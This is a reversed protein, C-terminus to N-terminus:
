VSGTKFKGGSLEVKIGDAKLSAQGQSEMLVQKAAMEVENLDLKFPLELTLSPAETQAAEFRINGAVVIPEDWLGAWAVLVQTGVEPVFHLGNTAGKGAYPSTLRASVVNEEEKPENFGTLRVRLWPDKPSATIVEGVGLWPKGARHLLKLQLRARAPLAHIETSWSLEPQGRKYTLHDKLGCIFWEGEGLWPLNRTRWEKWKGKEFKRSPLFYGTLPIDSATSDPGIGANPFTGFFFDMRGDESTASFQRERLGGGGTYSEKSAYTVIWPKADGEESVNGTLLLTEGKLDAYRGLLDRFFVWDSCNDQVLSAHDGDKFEVKSLELELTNSIEAIYSFRGALEACNRVHYVRRRPLFLDRESDQAGPQVLITTTAELSLPRDDFKGRFAGTIQARPGIDFEHDGRWFPQIQCPGSALAEALLKCRSDTPPLDLEYWWVVRQGLHREFWIDTARVGKLAAASRSSIDIQLSM